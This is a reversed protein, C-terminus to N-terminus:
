GFYVEGTMYDYSQRWVMFDAAGTLRREGHGVVISRDVHMPIGAERCHMSFYLDESAWPETESYGRFRPPPLAELVDRRILLVHAGVALVPALADAPAQDLMAVREETLLAPHQLLWDAIAAPDSVCELPSAGPTIYYYPLHPPESRFALPAVVPANWSILRTLLGPPWAADQDIMLLWKIGPKSLFREVATNRAAPVGEYGPVALFSWGGPHETSVLSRVYPWTARDLAPTIIAVSDHM